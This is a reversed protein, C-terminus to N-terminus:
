FEEGNLIAATMTYPTDKPNFVEPAESSFGMSNATWTFHAWNNVVPRVSGDLNRIATGNYTVLWATGPAKFSLNGSNIGKSRRDAVFEELSGTLTSNPMALYKINNPLNVINGIPRCSLLKVNVCKSIVDEVSIVLNAGSLLRNSCIALVDENNETFVGSFNPTITPSNFAVVKVGPKVSNDRNNLSCSMTILNECYNLSNITNETFQLGYGDGYFCAGNIGYINDGKFSIARKVETEPLEESIFAITTLNNITASYVTPAQISGVHFPIKSEITCRPGILFSIYKVNPDNIFAREAAPLLDLDICNLEPLNDNLVEDRLRTVLCNAM